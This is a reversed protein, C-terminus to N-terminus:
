PGSHVPHGESGGQLPSCQALTRYGNLSTNGWQDCSNWVAASAPASALGVTVGLALAPALLAKTIRNRNSKMNPTRTAM